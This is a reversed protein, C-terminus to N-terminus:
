FFHKQLYSQQVAVRIESYTEQQTEIKAIKQALLSGGLTTRDSCIKFEINYNNNCVTEKAARLSLRIKGDPRYVTGHLNDETEAPAM